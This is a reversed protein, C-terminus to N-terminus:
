EMRNSRRTASGYLFEEKAGDEPEPLNPNILQRAIMKMEDIVQDFREKRSENIQDPELIAYLEYLAVVRCYNVVLPYRPDSQVFYATDTPLNGTSAQICKFIPLGEFKTFYATDTIANGTGAQICKYLQYQSEVLEGVAYAAAVDYQKTEFVAYDDVQYASLSSFPLLDIFIQATDYRANLYGEVKARAENDATRFAYFNEAIDDLVYPKAQFYFDQRILFM